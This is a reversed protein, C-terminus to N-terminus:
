IRKGAKETSWSDNQRVIEDAQVARTSTAKLYRHIDRSPLHHQPLKSDSQRGVGSRDRAPGIIQEPRHKRTQSRAGGILGPPSPVTCHVEM